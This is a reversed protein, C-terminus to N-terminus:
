SPIIIGSKPKLTYSTGGIELTYTEIESLNVLVKAHGFDRGYLAGEILYYGGVPNGFDFDMEPYYGQSKAYINIWSFYSNSGNVGLLFCCFAYLFKEQTDEISPYTYPSALCYKATASVAALNNIDDLPPHAFVFDEMVKGDSVDLYINSPGNYILLRSGIQNKVYSLFQRMQTQWYTYGNVKYNWDPVLEPPVTWADRFLHTWVDDAMVGGFGYLDIREKVYNTYHKQWGQSSIDMCYCGWDRNVLRDGNLDHLFWDEHQDVDDWDEMITNMMMVDKYGLITISPNMAKIKEIDPGIKFDTDIMDFEAMHAIFDQSLPSNAGLAVLLKKIPKATTQIVGSAVITKTQTVSSFSSPIQGLSAFLIIFFAISLIATKL